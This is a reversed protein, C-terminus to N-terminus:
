RFPHTEIGIGDRTRLLGDIARLVSEMRVAARWLMLFRAGSCTGSPFPLSFNCFLSGFSHFVIIVTIQDNIRAICRTTDLRLCEIGTKSNITSEAPDCPSPSQTLQGTRLPPGNVDAPEEPHVGAAFYRAGVGGSIWPM